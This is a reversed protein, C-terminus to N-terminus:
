AAFLVRSRVIFKFLYELSEMTKLLVRLHSKDKPAEIYDKLVDLLKSFLLECLFMLHATGPIDGHKVNAVCM